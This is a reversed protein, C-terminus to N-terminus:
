EAAAHTEQVAPRPRSGPQPRPKAPSTAPPSRTAGLAAARTLRRRTFVKSITSMSCCRLSRSEDESEALTRRWRFFASAVNPKCRPVIACGAELLATLRETVVAEVDADTPAAREQLEIGFQKGIRALNVSEIGSILSIAVRSRRRSRHPGRPSHLGRSRGANRVPHRASLEPIDLGRAAVDTAVLFRLSGQRVRELVRERDTQSLDASLEDADYGFRQLVLAVYRVRDKTNCFIIASAPNEIEILRVLCRDKDM